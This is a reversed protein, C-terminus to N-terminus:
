RTTPREFTWPEPDAFRVQWLRLGAQRVEEPTATRDDLLIQLFVLNTGRRLTKAPVTFSVTQRGSFSLDAVGLEETNLSVAAGLTLTPSTAEFTLQVTRFTVDQVPLGTTTYPGALPRYGWGRNEVWGQDAFGTSDLRSEFLANDGGAAPAELHLPPRFATWAFLFAIIAGGSLVWAGATWSPAPIPSDTDLAPPSLALLVLPGVFGYYWPIIACALFLVLSAGVFRVLAGEGRLRWAGLGWVVLMGSLGFAGKWEFLGLRDLLGTLGFGLLLNPNREILYRSGADYWSTYGHLFAEPNMLLFPLVILSALLGGAVHWTLGRLALAGGERWRRWGYIAYLPVALILYPRVTICLGFLLGALFDRGGRLAAVWLFLLLWFVSVHLHPLFGAFPGARLLILPIAAPLAALLARGWTRQRSARWLAWAPLGLALVALCAVSWARIDLGLLYAPSFSLWHGPTYTLPISWEAVQHWRYPYLSDRWFSRLASEILPLMDGGNRPDAVSFWILRQYDRIASVTPWLLGLFIGGALLRRRWPSSALTDNTKSNGGPLALLAVLAGLPLLSLLTIRPWLWYARESYRVGEGAILLVWPVWAALLYLGVRWLMASRLGSPEVGRTTM